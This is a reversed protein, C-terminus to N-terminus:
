AGYENAVAEMRSKLLAMMVSQDRVDEQEALLSSLAYAGLYMALERGESADCANMLATCLGRVDDEDAYFRSTKRWLSM